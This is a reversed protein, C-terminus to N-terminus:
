PRRERAARGSALAARIQGLAGLLEAAAPFNGDRELIVTLPGPARAGLEGLLRLVADPVDHRHDDLLRRTGTHEATVWSGGAVHVTSVRDLPIEALLREAPWGFNVANAHLNHLDLLLGAGSGRLIAALWTPEDMTSGPPEILTAINEVLPARGVRRRAREINRCAADVSEATRPPAALHGIEHAGARVFALHESWAEPEVADHLRALRDLLLDSPPEASGLGLGTGHLMVPVRRALLNLGRLSARSDDLHDDALVEVVDIEGLHGLITAALEPRWGFGVRDGSM